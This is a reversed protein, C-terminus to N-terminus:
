NPKKQPISTISPVLRMLSCMAINTEFIAVVRTQYGFRTLRALMQELDPWCRKEEAQYPLSRRWVLPEGFDKLVQPNELCLDLRQDHGADGRCGAAIMYGTIFRNGASEPGLVLFARNRGSSHAPM